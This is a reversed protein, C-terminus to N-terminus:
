SNDLKTMNGFNMGFKVDWRLQSFGAVAFMGMILTLLVKKM